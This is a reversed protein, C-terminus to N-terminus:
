PLHLFFLAINKEREIKLYSANEDVDEPTHTIKPSM